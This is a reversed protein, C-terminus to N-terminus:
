SERVFCMNQSQIILFKLCHGCFMLDWACPRRLTPGRTVVYGWPPKASPLIGVHTIPVWVCGSIVSAGTVPCAAQVQSTGLDISFVSGTLETHTEKELSPRQAQPLCTYYVTRGQSQHLQIGRHNLFESFPPEKATSVGRSTNVALKYQISMTDWADHQAIEQGKKGVKRYSNM